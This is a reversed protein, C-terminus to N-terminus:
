SLSKNHDLAYKKALRLPRLLPYLFTLSAPLPLIQWDIPTTTFLLRTCYRLRDNLRERTRIHFLIRQRLGLPQAKPRLVNLRVEAALTRITSQEDIRRWISDPLAVEFLDKALFLGLLLIREAGLDRANSIVANWDLDHHLRVLEAIGCIWELREWTDKAGHVCLLLLLDETSPALIERELLPRYTLRDWFRNTDLPFMFFRSAIGWHLEVVSQGRDRTFMQVYGLKLFSPLQRESIKFHPEYGRTTLLQQCRWVDKKRVLIDLDSFQRLALRGYISMAIAPGKYPMAEIGETAFLDLIDFLEGTLLMSRATNKQFLEKLESLHVPPVIDACNTRLNEYLLPMLGHVLSSEILSAWDLTRGAAERIRDIGAQDPHTRACALLLSIEPAPGREIQSSEITM